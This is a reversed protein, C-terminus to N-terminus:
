LGGSGLICVCRASAGRLFSLEPQRGLLASRRSGPLAAAAALGAAQRIPGSEPDAAAHRAPAPATLALRYGYRPVTLLHAPSLPDDGLAARARRVVQTLADDVVRVGPWLAASIEERSLATDPRSALLELLQFTLPQVRVPQGDRLFARQQRNLAFRGWRIEDMPEM